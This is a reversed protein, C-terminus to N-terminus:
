IKTMNLLGGGNDQPLVSFTYAASAPVVLLGMTLAASFAVKKM